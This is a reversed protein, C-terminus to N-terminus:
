SEGIPAASEEWFWDCCLSIGNGPAPIDAGGMAAVGQEAVAGGPAKGGAAGSNVAGGHVAM